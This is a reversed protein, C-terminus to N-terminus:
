NPNHPIGDSCDNRPHEANWEENKLAPAAEVSPKDEWCEEKDSCHTTGQNVRNKKALVDQDDRLPVCTKRKLVNEHANTHRKCRPEEGNETWKTETAEGACLDPM